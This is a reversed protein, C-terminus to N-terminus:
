KISVTVTAPTLDLIAAEAKSQEDLVFLGCGHLRYPNAKDLYLLYHVNKQAAGACTECATENSTTFRTGPRFAGKWSKIVQWTVTQVGTVANRSESEASVQIIHAAWETKERVSAEITAPPEACKANALGSFTALLLATSIIQAITM